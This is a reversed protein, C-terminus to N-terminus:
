VTMRKPDFLRAAAHRVQALTLANIMANRKKVYDIPLGARQYANLQSAIGANSAFALPYSGTLYTKADKLEAETPGHAAFDALTARTVTLSQNMSDRRTAVQGLVFGAGRFDGFTTSIGYTLGRKERVEATLRSSFDGGGVIYNAVFGALYEPDRRLMGPLGFVATPQPVDLPAITVGPANPRTVPPPPPPTIGPLPAIAAKLLTTAAGPGIDGAVTIQAGGRVWHTAAFAKMDAATIAKIGAPDGNTNHAYPHGAFFVEYFRNSAVTPPDQQEQALAQFMQARVRDVADADFRPKQLALGLLRLAEPANATLTSISIVLTDRGPTMNLQIARNALAAQYQESTMDGAGENLMYASFAALGAKDKPDYASGAPLAVVIAVMPVTHDEQFWTQVGPAIDLARLEAAQAPAVAALAAFALALAFRKM